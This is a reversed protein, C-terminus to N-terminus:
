PESVWARPGGQAGALARPLLSEALGQAKWPVLGVWAGLPGLWASHLLLFHM